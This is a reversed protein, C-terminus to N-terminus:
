GQVTIGPGWDGATKAIYSLCSNIPFGISGMFAGDRSRTSTGISIGVLWPGYKSDKYWPSGSDGPLTVITSRIVSWNPHDAAHEYNVETIRGTTKETREGYKTIWDGNDPSGFKKFFPDYAYTTDYLSILTYGFVENDVDDDARSVVYGIANNNKDYFIERNKHSCHGATVALRDKDSNTALFGLSCTYGTSLHIAMGPYLGVSAAATPASMLGFATAAVMWAVLHTVVRQRM